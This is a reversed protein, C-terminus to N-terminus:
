DLINSQTGRGLYNSSRLGTTDDEIGASSNKLGSKGLSRCGRAWHQWWPMRSGELRMNYGRKGGSSTMEVMVTFSIKLSQVSSHGPLGHGRAKEMGLSLLQSACGEQPGLCPLPAPFHLFLFLMLTTSWPSWGPIPPGEWWSQTPYRRQALRNPRNLSTVTSLQFFSLCLALNYSWAHSQWELM